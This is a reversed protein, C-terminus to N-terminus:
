SVIVVAICASESNQMLVPGLCRMVKPM